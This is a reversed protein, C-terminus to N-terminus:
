LKGTRAPSSHTLDQLDGTIHNQPNQYTGKLGGIDRAHAKLTGNLQNVHTWLGSVHKNLGEKIRQLSDTIPELKSCVSEVNTIRSDMNAIMKGVDETKKGGHDASKCLTTNLGVLDKAEQPGGTNVQGCTANLSELEQSHQSVSHQVDSLSSELKGVRGRLSNVESHAKEISTSCNLLNGQIFEKMDGVERQLAGLAGSPTITSTDVLMTAVRDEVSTLRDDLTKRLDTIVESREKRLKEELFLCQKGVNKESSNCHVELNEVRTVLSNSILSHGPLVKDERESDALKAKLDQIERRLDAEKSDMLEALSLYNDEQGECQDKVSMIKYDCANKLDAIKIEMGEMLEDRLARIKEDVYAHLDADSAPSAPPPTGPPTQAAEMLLQIQGDHHNVRGLLDDLANSKSELTNSVDNIKNMVEDMHATEHELVIDQLQITRTEAGRASAPQRLDNLLTVLMKSADEQLNMRLNSSMDTMSAQMDLVMQSLRHVEEELHQVNHAGGQGGLM